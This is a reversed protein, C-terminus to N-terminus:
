KSITIYFRGRESDTLAFLASPMNKKNLADFLISNTTAIECFDCEGDICFAEALFKATNKFKAIDYDSLSNNDIIEPSVVPQVRNAQM